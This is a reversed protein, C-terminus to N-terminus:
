TLCIKSIHKEITRAQKIIVKKDSNDNIIEILKEMMFELKAKEKALVYNARYEPSKMKEEYYIEANTKM